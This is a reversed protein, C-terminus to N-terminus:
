AVSTEWVPLLVLFMIGFTSYDYPIRTGSIVSILFQLPVYMIDGNDRQWHVMAIAGDCAAELTMMTVYDMIGETSSGGCCCCVIRRCAV